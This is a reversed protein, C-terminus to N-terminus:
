GGWEKLENYKVFLDFPSKWEFCISGNVIRPNSLVLNLMERKESVDQMVYQPYLSKVLELTKEGQKPFEEKQKLHFEISSQLESQRETWDNSKKQWLSEPIKGELKDEYCKEVLSSVRTYEYRASKLAQEHYVQEDLKNKELSSRLQHIVEEPVNIKKIFGDFTSLIKQQEIYVVDTCQNKNGTCHYYIYSRGSKKIKEEGTIARGCHGCTMLGSFPLNKTNFKPKVKNGLVNQVRDFLAKDILPEHKLQYFQGKVFGM